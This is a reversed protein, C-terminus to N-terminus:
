SVSAEHCLVEATPISSELDEGQRRKYSISSVGTLGPDTKVEFVFILTPQSSHDIDMIRLISGDFSIQTEYDADLAFRKLIGPKLPITVNEIREERQFFPFNLDKSSLSSESNLKIFISKALHDKEIRLRCHGNGILREFEGLASHVPMRIEQSYSPEVGLLCFIFLFFPKIM